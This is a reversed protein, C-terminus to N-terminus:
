CRTVLGKSAMFENTRLEVATAGSAYSSIYVARDSSNLLGGSDLCITQDSQGKGPTNAGAVLMKSLEESGPNDNETVDAGTSIITYVQGSDPSRVILIAVKMPGVTASTKPYAIKTGWEQRFSDSDSTSASIVYNKQLSLVDTDQISMDKQYGVVKFISIKEDELRVYKGLLVCDSQGRNSKITGSDSPQATSGCSWNDDRSNQVSSIDAYQQQLTSKFTEAADHYRQTNVSAGTSAILTVILASSIGLFLMTEIITFGALTRLGM